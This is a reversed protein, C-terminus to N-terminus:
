EIIVKKVAVNEDGFLKVFYLGKAEATLDVVLQNETLVQILKGEANFIAGSHFPKNGTITFIGTSPNPYVSKVELLQDAPLGTNVGVALYGADPIEDYVQSTSSIDFGGTGAILNFRGDGDFVSLKLGVTVTNASDESVRANTSSFPTNIRIFQEFVGNRELFIKYDPKISTNDGLWNGGDMAVRNTDMGIIAGFDGSVSTHFYIKFWLSDNNKDLAYWISKIDKAFAAKSDGQADTGLPQFTQSMAASVLIGTFLLTLLVNKKMVKRIEM